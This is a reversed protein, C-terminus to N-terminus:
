PLAPGSGDLPQTPGSYILGGNFWREGSPHKMLFKFSHPAFDNHIVCEGKGGAYTALYDLREILKAACGNNVAWILEDLFYKQAHENITIM